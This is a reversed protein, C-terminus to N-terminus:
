ISVVSNNSTNLYANGDNKREIIMNALKHQENLYIILILRDIQFKSRTSHSFIFVDLAEVGLFSM